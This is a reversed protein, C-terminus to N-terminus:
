EMEGVELTVAWDPNDAFALRSEDRNLLGGINRSYPVTSMGRSGEQPFTQIYSRGDQVPSLTPYWARKSAWDFKVVKGPEGGENFDIWQGLLKTNRRHLSYRIGCFIQQRVRVDGSELTGTSALTDFNARFEQEADTIVERPVGRTKARKGSSGFYLGPQVLFMGRKHHEVSWGGLSENCVIDTRETLSFVADTAIMIVDEGCWHGANDKCVPSSHIFYQVQTRCMATIFSGWISNSYKPKGVSQVTKGYLSNLGLKLVVGAADKGIRIRESYVSDVFALPACVCTRRYIWAGSVDFRQHISANIEFSWYWGRGHAPYTITGDPGRFPLGFYLPRRARSSSVSPKARVRPGFDGLCLAYREGLQGTPFDLDEIDVTETYTWEGHRLCPVYRMASPYASNIDYQWVPRNVPGVASIEPRGGYFANAAYELVGSYKEDHLFAVEKTPPVRHARLMAEALLGPGQWRSPVYGTRKCAKRFKEMLLQLLRIELQNYETIDEIESYDFSGRAEKGREIAAREEETGVDWKELAEVFRCQFFSGVDNITIWPSWQITNPDGSPIQRRVKFEKRPLYDLQFNEYDVPFTGLGDTRLRLSRHVLRNLKSWPLDECIKTVDYDFFYAVYCKDSQLRSLFDLCERTTLRAASGSPVIKRRGASLLFYAHYGTEINGGEGDVGVFSSDLVRRTETGEKRGKGAARYARMYERMYDPENTPM